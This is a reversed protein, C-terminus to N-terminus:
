TGAGAKELWAWQEDTVPMAQWPEAKPQEPMEAVARGQPVDPDDATGRGTPRDSGGDGTGVPWTQPQPGSTRTYKRSSTACGVRPTSTESTAIAPDCAAVM